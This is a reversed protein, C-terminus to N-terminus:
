TRESAVPENVTVTANGGHAAQAVNKSNTVTQSVSQIVDVGGPLARVSELVANAASVIDPDAAVNATRMTEDVVAKRADSDPHAELDDVARAVEGADGFRRRILKKLGDYADLVAEQGLKSVSSLAGTGLAALIAATIPDM